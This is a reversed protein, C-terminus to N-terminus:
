RATSAASVQADLLARYDDLASQHGAILAAQHEAEVASWVPILGTSSKCAVDAAATALEDPGASESTWWRPDDNADMPAAYHYGAGAMCASWAAFADLVRPDALAAHWADAQVASVLDQGARLSSESAVSAAQAAAGLCGGEPVDDRTTAAGDATVGVLVELEADTHAEYFARRVDTTPPPHYGHEAAIEPDAVAYRRDHRDPGDAASGFPLPEVAADDLGLASACERVRAEAASGLERGEETTLAYADLPLTLSPGAAPASGAAPLSGAVAVGGSSQVAVDAPAAACGAVPLALLVATRVLVRATM